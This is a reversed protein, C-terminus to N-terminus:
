TRLWRLEELESDLEETTNRTDLANRGYKTGKVRRDSWSESKSSSALCQLEEASNLETM